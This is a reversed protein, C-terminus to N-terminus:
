PCVYSSGGTQYSSIRDNWSNGVSTEYGTLNPYEGKTRGGVNAGSFVICEGTWNTNEYALVRVNAGVKVSSIKDNWNGGGPFSKQTLNVNGGGKDVTFCKGKFNADSCFMVQNATQAQASPGFALACAVACGAALALLGSRGPRPKAQRTLTM